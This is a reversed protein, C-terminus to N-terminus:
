PQGRSQREDPQSLDYAIITGGLSNWRRLYATATIISARGAGDFDATELYMATRNGGSYDRDEPETMERRALPTGDGDIVFLTHGSTLAIQRGRAALRAATMQQRFPNHRNSAGSLTERLNCRWRVNVAGGATETLCYVLGGRVATVIQDIGDGDLDAITFGHPRGLDELEYLWLPTEGLDMDPEVAFARIAPGHLLNLTILRKAQDAGSRAVGLHFYRGPHNGAHIRHGQHDYIYVERSRPYAHGAVAIYKRGDGGSDFVSLQSVTTAERSFRHWLLGGDANLVWLRGFRWDAGAWGAGGILVELRGDGNIDATKVTWLPGDFRAAAAQERSQDAESRTAAMASIDEGEVQSGSFKWVMAGTLADLCYVHRDNSTALVRMGEGFDAVAISNITHSTRAAGRIRGDFGGTIEVASFEWVPEGEPTLRIVRGDELGIVPDARGDGTLDAAQIATPATDGVEYRWRERLRSEYRLDVSAFSPPASPQAATKSVLGDLTDLLGADLQIAFEHRGTELEITPHDDRGGDISVGSLRLTAPGDPAEVELRNAGADLALHIPRDSAAIPTEGGFHLLDAFSLEDSSIWFIGSQVRLDDSLMVSAPRGAGDPVASGALATAGADTLVFLHDHIRRIQADTRGILSASVYEDGADLAGSFDPEGAARRVSLSGSSWDSTLRYDDARRIGFRDLILWYGGKRWLIERSWDMGDGYAVSRVLGVRSADFGLSLDSYMSFDVARGNRRVAVTDRAGDRGHQLVPIRNQAGGGYRSSGYMRLYQDNQFDYGSRMTLIRYTRERPAPGERYAVPSIGTRLIGTMLEPTQAPMRPIFTWLRHHLGDEDLRPQLSQALREPNRTLLWAYTPELYHMVPYLWGDRTGGGGIGSFVSRGGSNDTMQILFDLFRAAHGSEFYEMKEFQLLMNMVISPGLLTYGGEENFLSYDRAVTDLGTHVNALADQYRELDIEPYYRQFYPGRSVPVRARNWVHLGRLQGPQWDQFFGHGCWQWFTYGNM